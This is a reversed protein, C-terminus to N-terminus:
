PHPQNLPLPIIRRRLAVFLTAGILDATSGPNLAHGDSRLWSDFLRFEDDSGSRIPWGSSLVHRARLAAEESIAAGRKRLILSDGLSALLELHARVIAQLLPLGDDLARALSPVGLDLVESFANAYQRAVLDRDAAMSMIPRLPSTPESALDQDPATGLSAPNALRIAQFVLRSDHTTLADLVPELDDRSLDDSAVASLPALLLVLGLNTNTRVLKRTENVAELIATGVGIERAREMPGSIAAASLAFDLADADDFPAGPHVNGAKPAWVELLCALQACLGIPVSM